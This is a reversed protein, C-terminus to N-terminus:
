KVGLIKKYCYTNCLQLIAVYPELIEKKIYFFHCSLRTIM